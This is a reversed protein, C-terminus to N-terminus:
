DDRDNHGSPQGSWRSPRRSAPAPRRVRALPDRPDARFWKEQRRAFRRTRRSPTRSPRARREAARGPPGAGPQLRPGQRRHPGRAAGRRRPARGGGAPRRGVHPAGARRDARGARARPVALGVLVTPALHERTPLTASFPRGTLEIVELARVIRRGNNAQIASAAQPDLAALRDRLREVGRDSSSGGRLAARVAPDTPPIELRDLAARVYLGSGGVLLPVRGRARIAALDARAERQYAAVSAEERVDLVDLQHHPIGRREPLPLKATGIDMGRYLQMADANVVEGGLASPWPSPWTPSAAPPPGVVAVVPETRTARRDHTAARDREHEDDAPRDQDAAAGCAPTDWVAPGGVAPAPSRRASRGHPLNTEAQGGPYSAPTWGTASLWSFSCSM